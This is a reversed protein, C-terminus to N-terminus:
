NMQYDDANRFSHFPILTDSMFVNDKTLSTYYEVIIIKLQNQAISLLKTQKMNIDM